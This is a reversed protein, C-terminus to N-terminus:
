AAFGKLGIVHVQEQNGHVKRILKYTTGKEPSINEPAAILLQMDQRECLEFLTAISRTDLRAAEDLFLLRCPLVDRSRLHRSEDEWSQLVMLLIAQGTGIAEGTSLAGSEARLWGDSGRQVEVDLDLYNRYDLLAQGLVQPSRDGQELQPNLRQFLKGMAESFSIEKSSFLDQHRGEQDSLAALLRAYTERMNVNLRVGGVLGFSINQLGQNLQRIRNQERRIITNIKAAVEHSSLSLQGERQQLEDALRALEIEMEELAEVPDDARIIDHRIRAKLHNFVLIYFQVKQLTNRQGESVRLADRLEDDDAVAMRLAGLAKDSISRLEDADLYALEPRALRREVDHDRALRAVKAWNAKHAVLAKRAAFYGQGDKSLRQSLSEVERQCVQRQAETQSRKSRTHVLENERERKAALAQEEMDDSLTIGLAAFEECFENLTQSRADHGTTIATRAQLADTVRGSLQEVRINAKRRAEEAQVLKAKLSDNMASSKDLLQEADAYALHPLRAVLQTLAYTRARAETLQAEVSSVKQQLADFEAPDQRLVQVQESLRGLHQGHLAMFDRAQALLDQEAQAAAFQEQVREGESASLQDALPLLRHLLTQIDRLQDRKAQWQLLQAENDTLAADIRDQEATLQALATEPNDGFAHQMGENVFESLQHYLRSQKQQTFAADAYQSNAAELALNLQEIKAERAARGFLPETTFRSYRLQREGNKVWIAGELETAHLVDEDFADPNGQILYVDNPCSELGELQKLAAQPDQVVIANRAPGYLAEYYPADDVAIDDYVDALLTGGLQECLSVLREDANSGGHLSRIQQALQQKQTLADQKQQEASHEARLAQQMAHTVESSDQLALDSLTQLRALQQQAKHWAPAQRRQEAIQPAIQERLNQQQRQNDACEALQAELEAKQEELEALQLELAAEDTVTHGLRSLEEQLAQVKERKQVNLQAQSYQQRIRSERNLLAQYERGQELLQNARAFAQAREAKSDITQLLALAQDFQTRAAQALALQQQHELVVATLAQERAQHTQEQVKAQEPTLEPLGCQIKAEGLATRAQRYQIARTQQTDLAQQYDALQTKLSDVEEDAAEKCANAAQHEDELEALTEQQIALKEALEDLEQQYGQIKENLKVGSLVRSLHEAALDLEETQMRERAALHELEDALYILRAREEALITREHNLARRAALAQESLRQKEASNRVYDAAVYQTTETILQRFVDRQRQTERIAELTRRNEFIAAEMDNFAQRIGANEPLLYDKLSRSITSSIGGYLSAEILRYFKVRDRQDKLKRPTVGVDFLFNHYETVTNFRTFQLNEATAAAKLENLSRVQGRGDALEALLLATPKINDDAQMGRISFATLNVKNDRNAVQELHVGFWVREGQSSNIEILSYCHGRQLKGYLGKDRSGSQSGAETTNRFHLLSLDPILAAIFAAMTTSKGAGNGGSLTTVLTDLEFTRAFFGNWNVMTLSHFKGRAFPPIQADQEPTASPM